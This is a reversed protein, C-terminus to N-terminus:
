VGALADVLMPTIADVNTKITADSAGQIAAVSSGANAALVAYFAKKGFSIPAAMVADFYAKDAATPSGTTLDYASIITQSTVKNRLEDESFLITRIELLTAM